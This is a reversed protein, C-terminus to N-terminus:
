EVRAGKFGRKAKSLILGLGKLYADKVSVAVQPLTLGLGLRNEKFNVRKSDPKLFRNVKSREARSKAKDLGTTLKGVGTQKSDM